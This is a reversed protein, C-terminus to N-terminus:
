SHAAVVRVGHNRSTTNSAPEIEVSASKKSTVLIAGALFLCGSAVLAVLSWFGWGPAPSWKSRGVFLIPGSTGVAYRRANTYWAVGQVLAAMIVIWGPLRNVSVAGLRHRYRAIVEASYLPAAVAIPLVFRGQLTFGTQLYVYGLAFTVAVIAVLSGFIVVRERRPAVLVALIVVLLAMVEWVAYALSPLRTDLYGFVGIAERVLAHGQGGVTAFFAGTIRGHPPHPQVAFEWIGGAITGV